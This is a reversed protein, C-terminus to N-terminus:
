KNRSLMAAMPLTSSVVSSMDGEREKKEGELYPVFLEPRRMDKKAAM